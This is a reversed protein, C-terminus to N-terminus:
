FNTLYHRFVNDNYELTVNASTPTALQPVTLTASTANGSLNSEISNSVVGNSVNILISSAYLNAVTPAVWSIASSDPTAGLVAEIMISPTASEGSAFETPLLQASTLPVSDLTTSYTAVLVGNAFTPSAPNSDTYLKITYTLMGAAALTTLNNVQADNLNYLSTFGCNSTTSGAAVTVAGAYTSPAGAAITFSTGSPAGPSNAFLLLGASPLEPGTVVAFSIGQGGRDVVLPGLGTCNIRTSGSIIGSAEQSIVNARAVKQNGLSIWNGTSNKYLIFEERSSPHNGRLITFDVKYSATATGPVTNVWTPVASLVINGFSLQGGLITPNNTIQQLFTALTQGDQKFSTQDFFALLAPATASPSLAMEASLNKFYTTITQLDTLPAALAPTPLTNPTMTSLASTVSSGDLRNTITVTLTAPDQTVKLADLVADLGTGDATFSQHLLDVSASVGMQALIPALQADLAQTGATLASPTLLTNFNGNNFVNTAIAGALKSIILDTLPTINITASGSTVDQVTAASTLTYSVGGAQYSIELMYPATWGSLQASTFLYTGNSNTSTTATHAPVASDKITVVGNMADTIPAGTAAVGSILTSSSSSSAADGGGGCSALTLAILFAAALIVKSNNFYMKVDEM